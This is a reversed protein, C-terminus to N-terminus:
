ALHEQLSIRRNADELLHNTYQEAAAEESSDVSFQSTQSKREESHRDHRKAKQEVHKSEETRM